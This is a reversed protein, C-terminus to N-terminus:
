RFVLRLVMLDEDLKYEVQGVSVGAYDSIAQFIGARTFLDDVAETMARYSSFRAVPGCGLEMAHLMCTALAERSYTHVVLDNLSYFELDTSSCDPIPVPNDIRHTYLMDATTACLFRYDMFGYDEHVVIASTVDVHYWGGDLQVLNWEHGMSSALRGGSQTLYGYVVTCPINMCQMIFEFAKAFSACVGSRKMMASYMSQDLNLENYTFNRVMYEYVAKVTEYSPDIRGIQAAMDMLAQELEANRRKIEARDMSFSFEVRHGSVENNVFSTVYTYGDSWYIEPHDMLICDYAKQITEQTISGCNWSEVLNTLCYFMAQYAVQEGTSLQDHCYTDVGTAFAGFSFVLLVLFACLLFRFSRSM